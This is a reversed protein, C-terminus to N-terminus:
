AQARVIAWATDWQDRWTEQHPKGPRWAERYQCWGRFCEDETPLREPLTWLLLRAVGATLVDQYELAAHIAGPLVPVDLAECLTEVGERSREHRLVGVVGGFEFQAYGRAPGAVQRRAVLRSEQLCIALVMAEASPSTLVPPLLALAPRVAWAAFREPTVPLM